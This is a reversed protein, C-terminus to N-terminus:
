DATSGGYWAAIRMGLKEFKKLYAPLKKKVEETVTYHRGAEIGLLYVKGADPSVVFVITSPAQVGWHLAFLGPSGKM